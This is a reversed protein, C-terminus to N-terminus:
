LKETSTGHAIAKVIADVEAEMWKQYTYGTPMTEYVGVVPIGNQHALTLYKNTVEDTVQQNYLFVKVSKDTFLSQQTAADQPSPDADNMIDAQFSWPTKNDIGAAELMYDAVPETTAVPTSPYKSALDSLADTWTKLSGDFTSLNQKFYAAHDPQITSLADSIASAVAPMTRPDYWLHPNETSDPLNLVYQAVIVSRDSGGSSSEIHSFFDDYGLWNHVILQASSVVSAIKPSAEFTHPDTNPNSMVATVDVYQGGIQSIVDAYENEAGVAVVKGESTSATDGSPASAGSPSAPTTSASCGALLAAIALTSAASAALLTRKM